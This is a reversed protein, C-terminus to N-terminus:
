KFTNSNNNFSTYGLFYYLNYYNVVKVLMYFNDKLNTIEKM